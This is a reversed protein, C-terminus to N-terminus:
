TPHHGNPSGGLAMSRYLALTASDPSMSAAAAAAAAASLQARFAAQYYLLALPDAAASIPRLFPPHFFKRNRLQPFALKLLDFNSSNQAAAAVAAAMFSPDMNTQFFPNMDSGNTSPGNKRMPSETDLNM